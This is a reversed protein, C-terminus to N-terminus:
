KKELLIRCVLEHRTEHARLHTYSVSRVEHANYLHSAVEHLCIVSVYLVQQLCCVPLRVLITSVGLRRECAQDGPQVLPPVSHAHDCSCGTSQADNHEDHNCARDPVTPCSWHYRCDVFRLRERKTSSAQDRYRCVRNGTRQLPRKGRQSTAIWASKQCTDALNRPGPQQSGFQRTPGTVQKQQRPM